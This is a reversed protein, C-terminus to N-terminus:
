IGHLNKYKEIDDQRAYGKPDFIGIVRGILYVSTEDSFHMVPYDPNLSYLGDKEYKKIYTENGVIFAGTEGFDLNTDNSIKQVLVEQGDSFDPEMSDGNIKFIIDARSVQPSLYVYVPEADEEFETPDGIGAALSKKFHMLIKLDPCNENKEIKLLSEILNNVAYQHGKSLSNYKSLISQQESTLDANASSEALNYLDYLTIDLIKCIAPLLNVDPRSRGTEWNSISNGTIGLKKAMEKQEIGCKERYYRIRECILPISPVSEPCGTEPNIIRIGNDAPLNFNRKPM